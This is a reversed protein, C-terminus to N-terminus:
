KGQYNNWISLFLSKLLEFVFPIAVAIAAVIKKADRKFELLTSIQEKQLKNANKLEDVERRLTRCEEILGISQKDYSGILALSIKDLTEKIDGYAKDQSHKIEDISREVQALRTDDVM